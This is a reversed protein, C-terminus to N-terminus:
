ERPKVFAEDRNAEDGDPYRVRVQPFSLVEGDSPDREHRNPAPGVYVAENGQTAKGGRWRPATVPDGPGNAWVHRGDSEWMPRSIPHQRSARPRDGPPSCRRTDHSLRTRRIEKVSEQAEAVLEHTPKLQTVTVRRSPVGAAALVAVLRMAPTTPDNGDFALVWEQSDGASMGSWIAQAAEANESLVTLLDDLHEGSATAWVLEQGRRLAGVSRLSIAARLDDAHEEVLAYATAPPRGTRSPDPPPDVETLLGSAVMAAADKKVNSQDRRTAKALEGAVLPKRAATVLARGIDLWNAPATDWMEQQADTM